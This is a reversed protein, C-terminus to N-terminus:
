LEDLIAQRRAQWEETSVLEEERLRDLRRLREAVDGRDERAAAPAVPPEDRQRMASALYTTELGGETFLAMRTADGEDLGSRRALDRATSVRWIATGVALVIGVILVLAFLGGFGGDGSEGFGTLGGGEYSRHWEGGYYSCTPLEGQANQKFCWNPPEGGDGLIIVSM